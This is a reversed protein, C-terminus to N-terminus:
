CLPPTKLNVLVDVVSCIGPVLYGTYKLLADEYEGLCVLAGMKKVIMEHKIKNMSIFCESWGKQQSTYEDLTNFLIYVRAACRDDSVIAGVRGGICDLLLYVIVGDYKLFRKEESFICWQKISGFDPPIYVIDEIMSVWMELGAPTIGEHTIQRSVPSLDIPIKYKREIMGFHETIKCFSKRFGADLDTRACRDCTYIPVKSTYIKLVIPFIGADKGCFFCSIFFLLKKSKRLSYQIRRMYCHDCLDISNNGTSPTFNYIPFETMDNICRDCVYRSPNIPAFQDDATSLNDLVNM